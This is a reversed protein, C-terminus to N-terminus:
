RVRSGLLSMAQPDRVFAVGLLWHPPRVGAVQNRVQARGSKPVSLTCPLSSCPCHVPTAFLLLGSVHSLSLAGPPSSLPHLLTLPSPSLRLAVVTTM